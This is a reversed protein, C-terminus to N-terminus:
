DEETLLNKYFDEEQKIRLNLLDGTFVNSLGKRGLLYWHNDTNSKSLYLYITDKKQEANNVIASLNNSNLIDAKKTLNPYKFEVEAMAENNETEISKINFNIKSSVIIDLEKTDLTSVRKGYSNMYYFGNSFDNKIMCQLTSELDESIDKQTETNKGIDDTSINSETQNELTIQNRYVLVGISIVMLLAIVISLIGITKKKSVM